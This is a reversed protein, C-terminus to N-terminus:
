FESAEEPLADPLYKAKKDHQTSAEQASYEKNSPHANDNCHRPSRIFWHKNTSEPNNCRKASLKKRKPQVDAEETLHQERKRQITNHDQDQM